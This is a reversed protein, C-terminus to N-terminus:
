IFIIWLPHHRENRLGLRTVHNLESQNCDRSCCSSSSRFRAKCSESSLWLICEIAVKCSSLAGGSDSSRCCSAHTMIVEGRTKTVDKSRRREVRGRTPIRGRRVDVLSEEGDRLDPFRDHPRDHGRSIIEVCTPGARIQCAQKHPPARVRASKSARLSVSGDLKRSRSSVSALKCGSLM